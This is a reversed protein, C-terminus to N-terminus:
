VRHRTHSLMGTHVYHDEHLVRLAELVTKAVYKIESRTLRQSASARMLDDDLHRLVLAPPDIPDRIEDVLPRLSSTRGWFRKLVM